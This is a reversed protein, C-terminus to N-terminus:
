LEGGRGRFTSVITTGNQAPHSAHEFRGHSGGQGLADMYWTTEETDDPPGVAHIRAGVPLANREVLNEIQQMQRARDRSELLVIDFHGLDGGEKLTDLIEEFTTGEGPLLPTYRVAASDSLAHRVLEMGHSSRSADEEVCVLEHPFEPVATDLLSPLMGLARGGMGSEMVLVNLGQRRGGTFSTRVMADLVNRNERCPLGLQLHLDHMGAFADLADNLAVADGAVVSQMVHTAAAHASGFTWISGGDEPGPRPEFGNAHPDRPDLEASLLQGVDLGSGQKGGLPKATSSTVAVCAFVATLTRM